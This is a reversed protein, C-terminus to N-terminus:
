RRVAPPSCLRDNIDFYYFQLIRTDKGWPELAQVSLHESLLLNLVASAASSLTVYSWKDKFHRM